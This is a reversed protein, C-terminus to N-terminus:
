SKELQEKLGEPLKEFEKGCSVQLLQYNEQCQKVLSVLKKEHDKAVKM